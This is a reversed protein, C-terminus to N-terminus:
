PNMQAAQLMHSKQRLRDKLQNEIRSWGSDYLAQHNHISNVLYTGKTQIARAIQDHQLKQHNSIEFLRGTNEKVKILENKLFEIQAQNHVGISMAATAMSLAVLELVIQKKHIVPM